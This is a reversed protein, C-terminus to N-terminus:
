CRTGERKIYSPLALGRINLNVFGVIVKASGAIDVPVGIMSIRHIIRAQREVAYNM